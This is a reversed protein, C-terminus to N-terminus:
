GYIAYQQFSALFGMAMLIVLFATKRLKMQLYQSSYPLLITLPFVLFMTLNNCYKFPILNGYFILFVIMFVVLLNYGFTVSFNPNDNPM